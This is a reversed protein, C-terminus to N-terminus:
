DIRSPDTVVEWWSAYGKGQGGQAREVFARAPFVMSVTRHGKQQQPHARGQDFYVRVIRGEPAWSFAAVNRVWRKWTPPEFLYQEVNSSYLVNLPLKRAALEKAIRPMAGDGALDGVVPVIRNERSLRAVTRYADETGLFSAPKGAADRTKMLEGLTPYKRNSGEMSYALDLGKESFAKLTADLHALDDKGLELGLSRARDLTLARPDKGPAVGRPLMALWGAIEEFSSTPEPLKAPLKGTLMALMEARSSAHEFLAQYLLHEIMNQRRIDVIFALEPELMALYTFSQEPGVGVYAGGKLAPLALQKQVHLFSTENSVFNESPFKGAKESVAEILRGLERDSMATTAPTGPAGSPASASASASAPAVAMSASPASTSPAAAQARSDGRECGISSALTLALALRTVRVLHNM